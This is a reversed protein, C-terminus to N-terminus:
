GQCMQYAHPDLQSISGLAKAQEKVLVFIVGKMM